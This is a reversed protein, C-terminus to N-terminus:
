GSQFYSGTCSVNQLKWEGKGPGTLDTCVYEMWCCVFVNSSLWFIFINLLLHNSSALRRWRQLRSLHTQELGSVNVFIEIFYKGAKDMRVGLEFNNHGGTIDCLELGSVSMWFSHVLFFPDNSYNRVSGQPVCKKHMQHFVNEQFSSKRVLSLLIIVDVLCLLFSLPSFKWQKM